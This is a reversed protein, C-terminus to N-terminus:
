AEDTNTSTKTCKIRTKSLLSDVVSTLRVKGMDLERLASLFINEEVASDDFATKLM